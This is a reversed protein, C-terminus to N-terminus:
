NGGFQGMTYYGETESGHRPVDAYINNERTSFDLYLDNGLCEQHRPDICSFGCYVKIAGSFGMTVFSVFVVLTWM